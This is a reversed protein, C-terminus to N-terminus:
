RGREGHCSDSSASHHRCFSTRTGPASSAPDSSRQSHLGSIVVATLTGIIVKMTTSKGSANGGLLCVIEGAQVELDIGFLAQIPGYYASVGSLRLLPDAM